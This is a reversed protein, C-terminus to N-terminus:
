NKKFDNKISELLDKSLRYNAKINEIFGKEELSKTIRKTQRISKGTIEAVWDSSCDKGNTLCGFSIAYLAMFENPALTSLGRDMIKEIMLEVNENNM